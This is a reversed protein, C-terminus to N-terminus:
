KPWVTLAKLFFEIVVIKGKQKMVDSKTLQKTPHEYKQSIEHLFINIKYMM